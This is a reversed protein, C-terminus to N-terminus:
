RAASSSRRIRDSSLVRFRRDPRAAPVCARRPRLAGRDLLARRGRGARRLARFAGKGRPVRVRARRARARVLGLGDRGRGPWGLHSRGHGGHAGAREPHRFTAPSVMTGLRIRSTIAALGALTAWADHADADPRIIATYHDSRFLGELGHEETVRALRVWDDWTVGEQGEIMLCVRVRGGGGGTPHRPRPLRLARLRLCGARRRRPQKGALLPVEESPGVAVVTEPQFPALAARAVPSGVDGVIAIERPPSLWLDIACLTWAFFGPARPLAPEVLRFCPSRAGSSITTEGSGRSVCSCTRSCRTGRRSRRTRSTRRAHSARTATRPRSSSAATSTTPSCSSRSCRSGDLRSCGVCSERRSTSSSSGSRSTRTTTSSARLREHARRPDVPLLRGDDASLPGLLFEGLRRAADLWDARELRYGAEALAALALGNWSALAKDDRFPQPRTDREALVRERLEPELEGRVVYRGHEFPELLEHPLGVDEAEDPTWTYTLGEVGDTDADHASAFGGDPLALERLM